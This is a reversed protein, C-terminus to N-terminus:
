MKYQVSLDVKLLEKIFILNKALILDLFEQILNWFLSVYAFFSLFM